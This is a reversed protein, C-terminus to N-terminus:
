NAAYIAKAREIVEPPQAYARKIIGLIEEDYIPEITMQAKGAAAVFEPDSMTAKFAARIAAVREPPVGPPLLYPRSMELPSFVLELVAKDLPTKAYDIALPVDPIRPDHKVGMHVLLNIDHNRIWDPRTSMLSDYGLGVRGGVEGREMALLIENGSPYGIIVKFKTGVAANLALPMRSLDAGPADAGVTLEQKTADVLTKVPSTKWSVGLLAEKGESGIWNFKLPDFHTNPLGFLPDFANPRNITGLETGDKPAANYLHNTLVIGGGGLLNKVVMSPNGPIHRGMSQAILRAVIDNGGGTGTFVDITVTKGRYFSEVSQAAAPGAALLLPVCAAIWCPFRRKPTM